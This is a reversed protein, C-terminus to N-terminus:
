RASSPTANKPNLTGRAEHSRGFTRPSGHFSFRKDNRLRTRTPRAKSANLRVYWLGVSDLANLLQIVEGHQEHTLEPVAKAMAAVLRQVESLNSLKSRRATEVSVNRELVVGVVSNLLCLRPREAITAALLAALGDIRSKTRMRGLRAVMEDVWERIDEQFVQLLIAERSEFYRYVNSKALGVRRALENLTLEDLEGEDLMKRTVRLIHVRRQAKQHPQRARQFAKPSM